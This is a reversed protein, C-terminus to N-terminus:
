PRHLRDILSDRVTATDCPKQVYPASGFREPLQGRGDSTTLLFPVGQAQLADAVPFVKIGHLNVDLVAIDIARSDITNTDIARLADAVTEFPGIVTAGEAELSDQLCMALLLEDEVILVRRGHLDSTDHTKEDTLVATMHKSSDM